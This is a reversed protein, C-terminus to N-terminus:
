IVERKHFYKIEHRVNQHPEEILLPSYHHWEGDPRKLAVENLHDDEEDVFEDFVARIFESLGKGSLDKGRVSQVVLKQQEMEGDFHWEKRADKSSAISYNYYARQIRPFKFEKM